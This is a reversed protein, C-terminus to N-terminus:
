NPRDKLPYNPGNYAVDNGVDSYVLFNAGLKENLIINLLPVQNQYYGEGELM